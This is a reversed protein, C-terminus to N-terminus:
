SLVAGNALPRYTVALQLTGANGTGVIVMQILKTSPLVFPTVLPAQNRGATLTALLTAALIVDLTANNTQLTISTLGGASVSVFPQIRTVMIDGGSVTGVTYTGAAQAMSVSLLVAKEVSLDPLPGWTGM